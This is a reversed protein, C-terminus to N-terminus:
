QGAIVTSDIPKRRHQSYFQFELRQIRQGPESGLLWGIDGATTTRHRVTATTPSQSDNDEDETTEEPKRKGKYM